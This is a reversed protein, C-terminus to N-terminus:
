RNWVPNLHSLNGNPDVMQYHGMSDMMFTRGYYDTYTQGQQATYPLYSRDDGGSSSYWTSGSMLDGFDRQQRNYVDFREQNTAGWLNNVHNRYGVQAARDRANIERTTQHYNIMGERSFGGTAAYYYAFQQANMQGYPSGAQLYQQYMQQVRPDDMNQNIIQNEAQQMQYHLQNMRQYSQNLMAETQSVQQQMYANLDQANSTQITLLSAILATTISKFM